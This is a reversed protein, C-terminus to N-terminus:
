LRPEWRLAAMTFVYDDGYSGAAFSECYVHREAWFGLSQRQFLTTTTNAPNVGQSLAASASRLFNASGGYNATISHVGVSLSATSLSAAGASLSASGLLTAGDFFNSPV